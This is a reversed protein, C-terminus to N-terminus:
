EEKAFRRWLAALEDAKAAVPGGGVRLAAEMPAVLDPLGLLHRCQWAVHKTYDIPYVRASLFLHHLLYRQAFELRQLAEFFEDRASMRAVEHLNHRFDDAVARMREARVEDPLFALFQQRWGAWRHEPDWLPRAYIALNGISLEYPDNRLLGGLPHIDGDTPELDVRVGALNVGFNSNASTGLARACAASEAALDLDGTHFIALDADSEPTALGAGLSGVLVLAWIGPRGRFYGAVGEVAARHSETPYM